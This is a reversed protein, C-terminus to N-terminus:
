TNRVAVPENLVHHLHKILHLKFGYCIKFIIVLTYQAMTEDDIRAVCVISANM